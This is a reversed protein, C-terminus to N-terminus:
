GARPRSYLGSRQGANRAGPVEPGKASRLPDTMDVLFPKRRPQDNIYVLAPWQGAPLHYLDMPSLYDVNERNFIRTHTETDAAQVIQRETVPRRQRVNLREAIALLLRNTQRLMHWGSRDHEVLDCLFTRREEAFRGTSYLWVANSRKMLDSFM